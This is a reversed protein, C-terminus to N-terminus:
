RAWARNEGHTLWIKAPESPSRAIRWSMRHALYRALITRKSSWLADVGAKPSLWANSDRSESCARVQSTCQSEAVNCSAVPM